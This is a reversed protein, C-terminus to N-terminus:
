ARPPLAGHAVSMSRQPIGLSGAYCTEPRETCSCLLLQAASGSRSVPLDREKQKHVVDSRRDRECKCGLLVFYRLGFRHQCVDVGGGSWAVVGLGLATARGSVEGSAREGVRGSVTM